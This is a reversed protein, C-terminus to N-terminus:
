VCLWMKSTYYFLDIIKVYKNLLIYNRVYDICMRWSGNKKRILVPNTVWVPHNIEKM